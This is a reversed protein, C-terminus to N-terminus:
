YGLRKFADDRNNFEGSFNYPDSESFGAYGYNYNMTDVISEFPNYVNDAVFGVSEEFDDKLLKYQLTEKVFTLQVAAM